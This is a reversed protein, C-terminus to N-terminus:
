RVLYPRAARTALIEPVSPKRGDPLYGVVQPPFFRWVRGVRGEGVAIRRKHARRLHVTVGTRKDESGSRPGTQMDLRIHTYSPVYSKGKNSRAKNFSSKVETVQKSLGITQPLIMASLFATISRDFVFSHSFKLLSKNTEAKSFFSAAKVSYGIVPYRPTNVETDFVEGSPAEVRLCAACPFVVAADDNLSPGRYGFVSCEWERSGDPFDIEQMFVSYMVKHYEYEVVCQRFPLRLVDCTIMDSISFLSQDTKVLELAQTDILFRPLFTMVGVCADLIDQRVDHKTAFPLTEEDTEVFSRVRGERVADSLRHWRTAIDMNRWKHRTLALLM